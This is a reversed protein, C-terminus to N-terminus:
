LQNKVARIERIKGRLDEMGFELRQLVAGILSPRELISAVPKGETSGDLYRMILKDHFGTKRAFIKRGETVKETLYARKEAPKKKSYRSLANHLKAYEAMREQMKEIAHEQSRRADDVSMFIHLETEAMKNHENRIDDEGKVRTLLDTKTGFIGLRDEGKASKFHIIRATTRKVSGRNKHTREHPTARSLLKVFERSLIM